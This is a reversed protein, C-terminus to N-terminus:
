RSGTTAMNVAQNFLNILQEETLAGPEILSVPPIGIPPSHVVPAPRRLGNKDLFKGAAASVLNDRASRVPTLTSIYFLNRMRSTAASMDLRGLLMESLESFNFWQNVIESIGEETMLKKILTVHDEPYETCFKKILMCLNIWLEVDQKRNTSPFYRFEVTGYKFLAMLNTGYYRSSGSTGRLASTLASESSTTLITRLNTDNLETLAACFGCYKRGADCLDFVAPEICYMLAILKYISDFSNVDTWNIHVHVGARPNVQYIVPEHEPSFFGDIATSLDTGMLPKELVFERGTNRLSGDSHIAWGTSNLFGSNRILVNEAEIEVGVYTDSLVWRSDAKPVTLPRKNFLAAISKSKLATM